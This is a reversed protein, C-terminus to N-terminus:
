LQWLCNLSLKWKFAKM